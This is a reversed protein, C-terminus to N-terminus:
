INERNRLLAYEELEAVRRASNIYLVNYGERKFRAISPAVKDDLGPILLPQWALTKCQHRLLVYGFFIHPAKEVVDVECM